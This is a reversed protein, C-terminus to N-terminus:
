TRESADRAGWGRSPRLDALRRMRYGKQRAAQVLEILFDRVGAERENRFTRLRAIDATASRAQAYMDPSCTNLYVHVPHFNMIKLGPLRLYDSASLRQAPPTHVCHLYDGWNYPLQVMGPPFEYPQLMMGSSWPIMVNSEHTFGEDQFVRSLAHGHLLGHCRVSVADPVVCRLQRLVTRVDTHEDARPGFLLPLLNPHMGIEFSRDRLRTLAPTDHTAFFTAGPVRLDQLLGATWEIAEDAVWDIDFTLYIDSDTNSM